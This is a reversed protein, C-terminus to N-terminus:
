NECAVGDRDRDLKPQYGPQGAYIPAAGAARAADCNPFPGAPAAPAASVAPAAPAQQAPAQEVPAPAEYVPAQTPEAPEVPEPESAFDEAGCNELVSIMADKEAPKVWLHYKAKVDIQKAVYTCRYSSNSPLWTAADGDSKQQNTPGDVALLNLPDNAFAEREDVNLNQAGTQWADSLAVVHDIQVASSTSNGRQFDIVSATYNDHLTGTMVVCGNTGAKVTIAVLDRRLIDNRTDCGNRDVDAWAPGFLARDYGTKPARGKVELTNLTDMASQADSGDSAPIEAANTEEDLAVATPEAQESTPEPTPEESPSESTVAPSPTIPSESSREPSPTATSSSTSSATTSEEDTDILAGCGALLTFIGLGTLAKTRLSTKKKNQRPPTAPPYVASHKKRIPSM